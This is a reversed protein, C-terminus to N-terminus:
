ANPSDKYFGSRILTTDTKFDFHIPTRSSALWCCFYSRDILSIPKFKEVNLMVKYTLCKM